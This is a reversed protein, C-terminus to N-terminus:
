KIPYEVLGNPDQTLEFEEDAKSNVDDFSM